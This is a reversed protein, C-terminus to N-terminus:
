SAMLQRLQVLQADIRSLVQQLEAREDAAPEPAAPDVEVSVQMVPNGLGPSVQDLRDRLQRAGPEGENRLDQLPDESTTFTEVLGAAGRRRVRDVLALGMPLVDQMLTLRVADLPRPDAM